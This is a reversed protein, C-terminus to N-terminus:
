SVLVKAILKRSEDLARESKVGLEYMTAANGYWERNYEDVLAAVEPDMPTTAAHDLYIIGLEKSMTMELNLVGIPATRQEGRTIVPVRYRRIYYLGM